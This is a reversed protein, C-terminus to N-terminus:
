CRRVSACKGDCDPMPASQRGMSDGSGCWEVRGSRPRGRPWGYKDGAASDLPADRALASVVSDLPAGDGIAATSFREDTELPRAFEHLRRELPVGEWGNI